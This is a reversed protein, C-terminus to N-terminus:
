AVEANVPMMSLYMHTGDTVGSQGCENLIIPAGYRALPAFEMTQQQEVPDADATCVLNGVFDCQLLSDAISDGATGTYTADSGSVGGPFTSNDESQAWYLRIVAGSAPAVDIEMNLTMRYLGARKAGLDVKAGQWAAANALGAAGASFDLELTNAWPNDDFDAGHAWVIRTGDEILIDNNAM